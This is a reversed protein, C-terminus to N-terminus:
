MALLVRRYWRLRRGYFFYSPLAPSFWSERQHDDLSSQAWEAVEPDIGIRPNLRVEMANNWPTVTIRAVHAHGDILVREGYEVTIAAAAPAEIVPSLEALYATSVALRRHRDVRALDNLVRLYNADADGNFPQM